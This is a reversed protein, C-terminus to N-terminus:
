FSVQINMVNMIKWVNLLINVSAKYHMRLMGTSLLAESM